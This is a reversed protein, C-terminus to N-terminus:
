LTASKKLVPKELMINRAWSWPSSNDQSNSDTLEAPKNRAVTRLMAPPITTQAEATTDKLENETVCDIMQTTTTDDTSNNTICEPISAKTISETTSTSPATALPTTTPAPTTVTAASQTTQAATATTTTQPKIKNRSVGPFLLSPNFWLQLLLM